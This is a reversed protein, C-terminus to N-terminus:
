KKEWRFIENEKRIAQHSLAIKTIVRKGNIEDYEFESLDKNNCFCFNREKSLFLILSYIVKEKNRLKEDTLVEM